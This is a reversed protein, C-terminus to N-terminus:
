LIQEFEHKMKLGLEKLPKRTKAFYYCSNYYLVDDDSLEDIKEAWKDNLFTKALPKLQIICKEENYYLNGVKADTSLLRIKM